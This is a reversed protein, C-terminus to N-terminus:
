VAAMILAVAVIAVADEILAAPRDRGFAAALRARAAAGGLTGAFAGTAGAVLAGLWSASSLGVAAGCFGGSIVRTAFQVPVTRRPTRPLQDSVLEGVALVTFIWPTVAAGLFALVTGHLRLVGIAATWSVGAPAVMARLGAIIGVLFAILYVSM